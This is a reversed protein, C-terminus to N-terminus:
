LFIIIISIRAHGIVISIPKAVKSSSFAQAYESADNSAVPIAIIPTAIVTHVPKFIALETFLFSRSFSCSPM